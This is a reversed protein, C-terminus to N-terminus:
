APATATKTIQQANPQTLAGQGSSGPPTYRFGQLFPLDAIEGTDGQITQRHYRTRRPLTNRHWSPSVPMPLREDPVVSTFACGHQRFREPNLTLAEFMFRGSSPATQVASRYGRSPEDGWRATTSSYRARWRHAKYWSTVPIPRSTLWQHAM